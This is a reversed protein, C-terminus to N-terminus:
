LKPQKTTAGVNALLVGLLPTRSAQLNRALERVADIHTKGWEAVIVVGDLVSGVALRDPGSSLSPLDVIVMDYAALDSLFAQMAWPALLNRADVASSSLVDFPRGPARLINLRVTDHLLKEDSGEFGLLWRSMAPRQVDTDIVLTKLGSLSYLTALNSAIMTKSSNRSVATLGLFRIPHHTDALSIETRVKRLSHSCRSHPRRAVEDAGAAKAPRPMPPVEGVCEVGLSDRIQNPTRITWDFTYRVFSLGIGLVLGAALAFALVLKPRPASPALPATAATIVRADAVPYSQQSVSNTYAHLFSEYMKRYTEATVELEELTPINEGTEEDTKNVVSYDHRSRFTQAEAMAGNMQTRLEELRQELWRGGQKAAEAKTEVQERVFADATANAIKAAGEPDLSTFSINIAYSVGVRRIDLGTHFILTTLRARQYESLMAADEESEGFYGDIAALWSSEGLGLAGALMTAMAGFRRGLSPTHPRNFRPDDILKLEDIVMAAIKESEMVAIQSEIQATDLSLNIEGGGQQLHQPLKPEILIQATATFAPATTSNYFWAILLAVALCAAITRVYRRLFATIDSLSIFEQSAVAQQEASLHFRSPFVRDM